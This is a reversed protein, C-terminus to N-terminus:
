VAANHALQERGAQLAQRARGIQALLDTFKPYRGDREIIVTLPTRKLSATKELLAFVIDPVDHIHDDLIKGNPLVRGGSLHIAAIKEHSIKELFVFPDFGFNVSNAYLNHLDLLLMGDSSGLIASIFEDEKLDSAPPEILSAVNELLGISGIIRRMQALNRCTGEVTTENRPPAALHGIEIKGARVFALHESWFVPEVKDVLRALNEIRKKEVPFTSAPGMTVGHLAIPLQAKLTLLAKPKTFFDDAIVEVLDIQDAHKLIDLGIEPRWGLGVKDQIDVAAAVVGAM